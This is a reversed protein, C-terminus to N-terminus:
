PRFLALARRVVEALYIGSVGVVLASEILRAGLPAAPWPAQRELVRYCRDRIRDARGRDVDLTRLRNLTLM